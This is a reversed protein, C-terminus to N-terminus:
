APPYPDGNITVVGDISVVELSAAGNIVGTNDIGGANINIPFDGTMELSIVGNLKSNLIEREGADNGAELVQALTPVPIAAIADDVYSKLAVNSSLRADNLTGSTLDSASTTGGGPPNAQLYDVILNILQRPDLNQADIAAQIEVITYAM